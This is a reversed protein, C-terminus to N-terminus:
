FGLSPPPRQFLFPRGASCPLRGICLAAKTAMLSLPAVLGVFLVPLIAMWAGSGITGSFGTVNRNIRQVRLGAFANRALDGELSHGSLFALVANTGSSAHPAGAQARALTLAAMAAVALWILAGKHRNPTM